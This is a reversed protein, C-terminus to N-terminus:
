KGNTVGIQKLLKKLESKNKIYGSFLIKSKHTIKFTNYKTNWYIYEEDLYEKEELWYTQFVLEDTYENRLKFITHFDITNKHIISEIDEQELYKVRFGQLGNKSNKGTLCREMYVISVINTCEADIWEENNYDEQLKVTGDLFSEKYQYELGICLEELEPVYYKNKKM